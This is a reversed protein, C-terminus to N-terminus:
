LRVGKRGAAHGDGSLGEGLVDSVNGFEVERGLVHNSRKVVGDLSSTM